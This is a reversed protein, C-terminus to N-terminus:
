QHGMVQVEALGFSMFGSRQIRLYRGTRDLAITASANNGITGSYHFSGVGAQGRTANFDKSTFPVDSVFVHFDSIGGNAGWIVVENLQSVTELDVEWWVQNQWTWTYSGMNGDVAKDATASGFTEVQTAPKGLSLNQPEVQAPEPDAPSLHHGEIIAREQGPIQWAVSLNDGGGGEKQLAEIYYRKGAELFITASKQEPYTDWANTNTWSSVFAIQQKNFPNDDTSLWLQGEDDSAIWFTYNGTTPAHVYGHIRSGYNDAWNSPASFSGLETTGNPNSPYNPSNTM